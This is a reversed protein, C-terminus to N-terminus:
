PLAVMHCLLVLPAFRAMVGPSHHIPVVIPQTPHSSSPPPSISTKSPAAPTIASSLSELQYQIYSKGM